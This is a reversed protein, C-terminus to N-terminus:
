RKQQLLHIQRRMVDGGSQINRLENELRKELEALTERAQRREEELRLRAQQEVGLTEQLERLRHESESVTRIRQQYIERERKLNERDEELNIREESVERETATRRSIEEEVHVQM